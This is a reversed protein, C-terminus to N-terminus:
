LIMRSETSGIIWIVRITKEGAIQHKKERVYAYAEPYSKFGAMNQEVCMIKM